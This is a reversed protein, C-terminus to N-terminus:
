PQIGAAGAGPSAAVSSAVAVGCSAVVTCSACALMEVSAGGTVVETVCTCRASSPSAVLQQMICVWPEYLDLSAASAAYHGHQDHLLSASGVGDVARRAPPTYPAPISVAETWAAPTYASHCVAGDMCPLYM